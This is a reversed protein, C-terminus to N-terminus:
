VLYECEGSIISNELWESAFSDLVSEFRKFLDQVTLSEVLKGATDLKLSSLAEKFKVDLNKAESTV